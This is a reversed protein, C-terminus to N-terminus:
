SRTTSRAMPPRARDHEPGAALADARRDFDAWSLLRDGHVAAPAEGRVDACVEWLDALNWGNM